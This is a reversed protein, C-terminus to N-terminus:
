LANGKVYDKMSTVNNPDTILSKMRDRSSAIFLGLSLLFVSSLFENNLIYM